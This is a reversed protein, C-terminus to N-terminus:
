AMGGALVEGPRPLPRRVRDLLTQECFFVEADPGLGTLVEDTPLGALMALGLHMAPFLSRQFNRWRLALITDDPAIPTDLVDVIVEGSDIGTDVLHFSAGTRTRVPTPVTKLTQWDVVRRGQAGHLADLTAHAGRREFPSDLRTLGPHINLVRDAYLSGPRVLEDLILILGDVLVLDAQVALLCALLRQEFDHKGAERGARDTWPLRRYTSPIPCWLEALGRGQVQLGSPYIWPRGDLPSFGYAGVKERDRVSEPDDDIIVVQLAYADGLPTEDLARALYELPSMMYRQPGKEGFALQQGAQDAAANRLSMVYALKIKRFM